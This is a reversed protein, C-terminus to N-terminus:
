TLGSVPVIATKSKMSIGGLDVGEFLRVGRGGEACGGSDRSVSGRHGHQSNGQYTRQDAEWHEDDGPVGVCQFREASHFGPFYLGGAGCLEVGCEHGHMAEEAPVGGSPSSFCMISPTIASKWHPVTVFVM